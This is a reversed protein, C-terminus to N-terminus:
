SGDTMLDRDEVPATDGFTVSLHNRVGKKARRFVTGHDTPTFGLKEFLKLAAPNDEGV